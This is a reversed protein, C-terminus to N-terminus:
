ERCAPLDRVAGDQLDADHAALSTFWVSGVDDVLVSPPKIDKHILGPRHM